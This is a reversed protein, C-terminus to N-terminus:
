PEGEDGMDGRRNGHEDAASSSFAPPRELTVRGLRGTRFERCVLEAAAWANVQGGALLLGRRRGIEELWQDPSDPLAGYRQTVREPYDARLRRLLFVAVEDVPLIEEKIAGTAALLLGTVPDEFKPWLIGPTDLLEFATGVRIWQQSRTVGPLDGTKAATRRALRNILSSKGVNPIGLIMARVPRNRIGRKQWKEIAPAALERVAPSIASLGKGTQADVSVAKVGGRSFFRIWAETADPDAMDHRTMVILRPKEGILEQLVPNRSALPIRADVLEM